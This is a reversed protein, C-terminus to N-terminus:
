LFDFQFNVADNGPDLVELTIHVPKGPTMQQFADTKALYDRPTFRRQAVVTTTLDSLTILIDPYPQKFEATNVFIASILITNKGDPNTRVDRSTLHIRNVDRQGTFQCPLYSCFRVLYPKLPPLKDALEVNRFLALQFGIAAILVLILSSLGLTKQWSRRPHDQTDLSDQLAFPLEEQIFSPEQSVMEGAAEAPDETTVGPPSFTDDTVFADGPSLPAEAAVGSIADDRLPATTDQEDLPVLELADALGAEDTQGASLDAGADHKQLEEEAAAFISALSAELEEETQGEPDGFADNYETDSTQDTDFTDYRQLVEEPTDESLQELRNDLEAFIADLEANGTKNAAPSLGGSPEDGGATQDLDLDLDVPKPGVEEKTEASDGTAMAQDAPEVEEAATEDDSTDDRLLPTPHQDSRTEEAPEVPSSLDIFTIDEDAIDFAQPIDTPEDVPLTHVGDPQPEAQKNEPGLAQPKPEEAPLDDLLHRKANFQGRCHGCRVRGFAASLHAESVGFITQCHPCQTYM